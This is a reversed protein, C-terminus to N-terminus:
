NGVTTFSSNSIRDEGYSSKLKRAINYHEDAKEKMGKSKYVNGMNNHAMAFDPKLRLATQYYEIAKDTFGKMVYATGLDNYAVAYDPKM